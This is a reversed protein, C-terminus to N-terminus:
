GYRPRSPLRLSDQVCAGRVSREGFWAPLQQPTVHNVVPVSWGSLRTTSQGESTACMLYMSLRPWSVVALDLRLRPSSDEHDIDCTMLETVHDLLWDHGVISSPPRM